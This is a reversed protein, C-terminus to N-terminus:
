LTLDVLTSSTSRAGPVSTSGVIRKWATLGGDLSRVNTKGYATLYSAKDLSRKGDNSCIVIAADKAWEDLIEFTLDISLLAAGQLHEAEFEAPSRVDILHLTDGRELGAVVEEVSVHLRQEVDTSGRVCEVIQELDDKIGHQTRVAGLTDSDNYGCASCGGIHYRHFLGIKAAPFAGLIEGMTTDLTIM